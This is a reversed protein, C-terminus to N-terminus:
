KHNFKLLPTVPDVWAEIEYFYWNERAKKTPMLLPLYFVIM